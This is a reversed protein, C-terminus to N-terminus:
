PIVGITQEEDEDIIVKARVMGVDVYGILVSREVILRRIDQQAVPFECLLTVVRRQDRKSVAVTQTTPLHVKGVSDKVTLRLNGAKPKEVAFAGSLALRTGTSQRCPVSVVTFGADTGFLDGQEYAITAVPLYGTKLKKSDQEGAALSFATAGALGLAAVTCFALRVVDKKLGLIAPGNCM